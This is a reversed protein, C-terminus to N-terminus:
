ISGSSICTLFNIKIKGKGFKTKKTYPLLEKPFVESNTKGVVLIEADLEQAVALLDAFVDDDGRDAM